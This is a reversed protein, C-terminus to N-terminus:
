EVIIMEKSMQLSNPSPKPPYRGSKICKSELEADVEEFLKKWKEIVIPWSFRDQVFKPGKQFERRPIDSIKRLAEAIHTTHPEARRFLDPSLTESYPPVLIGASVLNKTAGASLGIVPTGVAQAQITSYGFGELGANVVVDALAHVMMIQYESYRGVVMEYTKATKTIDALKLHTLLKDIEWGGVMNPVTHIYLRIKLDAYTERFLQIATLTQTWAKRGQQNAAVISINFSDHSFGLDKMMKPYKTRDKPRWLDTNLGLPIPETVNTLGAKVLKDRADEVWPVVKLAPKLREIFHEPLPDLFYVPPQIVWRMRDQRALEPIRELAWADAIQWLIEAHFDQYHEEVIDEGYGEANGPYIPVVHDCVIEEKGDKGKESDFALVFKPEDTGILGL